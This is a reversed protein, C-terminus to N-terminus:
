SMRQANDLRAVQKALDPDRPSVTAVEPVGSTPIESEGVWIVRRVAARGVARAWGELVEAAGKAFSRVRSDSAAETMLVATFCRTAAAEVHGEDSVDGLAVKIGRKRFMGAQEEDTVYVRIERRPDELEAIVARGPATDAGVVIVPM